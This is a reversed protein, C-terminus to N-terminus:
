PYRSTPPLGQSAVSAAPVVKVPAGPRLQLLGDTVVQEGPSVGRAIVASDSATLSEVVPRMDVTHNPKLVFVYSGQQGTQVARAPVVVANKLTALTMRVNVFQGPWLQQDHNLFTARMKLTGTTPDVNNDIFTVRGGSVPMTSGSPLVSVSLAGQRQYAQIEPLAEQPVSYTVYIPSLQNIVVMPTTDNARIMNGETVMLSGTRGSIPAHIASYGLQVRAYQVAAADSGVTGRLAALNTKFQDYQEASVGGENYLATYRQLQDSANREQARDRQLAAEAQTVAAQLPRPDVQFLPQGKVVDQGQKFHVAMLQGGVQSRVSVTQIPELTGIATLTKPVDQTAAAAVTVLIPRLAEHGLKGSGADSRCAALTTLLLGGISLVARRPLTRPLHRM